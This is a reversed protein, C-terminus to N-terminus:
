VDVPRIMMRLLQPVAQPSWPKPYASGAYMAPANKLSDYPTVTQRFDCKGLGIITADDREIQAVRDRENQGTIRGGSVVPCKITGFTVHHAYSRRSKLGM